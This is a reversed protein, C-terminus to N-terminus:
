RRSRIRRVARFRLHSIKEKKLMIESKDFAVGPVGVTNWWAPDTEIPENYDFVISASNTVVVGHPADDRLKIRYTLHGEGRHTEDNSPLFGSGDNPWGLIGNPDYVRMNWQVVGTQRDLSVTTRVYKNTGNMKVESTGSSRGNLGPDIQNNFAIEGMEFTSWDLWESLPNSVKVEQADAIDFGEKNEFFITYTMWEGPEVYRRAGKGAPGSVENPDCSKVSAGGGGGRPENEGDDPIDEPKGVKVTAKKVNRGSILYGKARLSVPYRGEETFTVVPNKETYKAGNINWIWATPEHTQMRGFWNVETGKTKNRFSITAPATSKDATWNFDPRPGTMSLTERSFLSMEYPEVLHLKFDIHEFLKINDGWDIDVLNAEGIVKISYTM